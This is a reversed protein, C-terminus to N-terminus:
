WVTHHMLNREDVLGHLRLSFTQVRGKMGKLVHRGFLIPEIFRSREGVSWLAVDDQADYWNLLGEVINVTSATPRESLVHKGAKLARHIIKPQVSVPLAITVAQVDDRHLLTDLSRVEQEPDDYFADM